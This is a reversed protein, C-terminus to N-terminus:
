GSDGSERLDGSERMDGSERSDYFKSNALIVLTVM